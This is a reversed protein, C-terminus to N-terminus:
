MMDGRHEFGELPKGDYEPTFDFGKRRKLGQILQGSQWM